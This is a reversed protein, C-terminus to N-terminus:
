LRAVKVKARPHALREALAVIPLDGSRWKLAAKVTEAAARAAREAAAAPALGEVLGAGFSATVLDGAGNPARDLRPHTFLRPAEGDCFLLGIEKEGVPVSTVLAHAGLERCAALAAQPTELSRGVLRGLEWINPTIWDALPALRVALAEAVAEHVYLGKPDDGMIPDVVVV